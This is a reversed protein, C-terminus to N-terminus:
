LHEFREANLGDRGDALTEIRVNVLSDHSFRGIFVFWVSYHFFKGTTISNAVAQKSRRHNFYRRRLRAGLRM